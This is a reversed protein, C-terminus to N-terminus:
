ADAVLVTEVPHPIGKANVTEGRRFKMPRWAAAANHTLSEKCLEFARGSLVIESAKAASCLRAGLNVHHGLVTYDMRRHSGINGVVMEGSNIGIGLGCGAIGRRQWSEMLRRHGERMKLATNVAWLAHDKAPLPAGFLAMVEDGVIKDITAGADLIVDIQVTLYEDILAKVQEAALTSSMSTFGRLDAFLVTLEYKRAQFPDVGALMVQEMVTPSIYRALTQELRKLDSRDSILLQAGQATPTVKCLWAKLQRTAPDQRTHERSLERGAARAEGLLQQLAAGDLDESRLASLPKGAVKDRAVKFHAEAASSLYGICGSADVAILLDSLGLITQRAPAAATIKERLAANEARLRDIEERLQLEGSNQPSPGGPSM